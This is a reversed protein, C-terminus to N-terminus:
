PANCKRCDTNHKRCFQIVNGLIQKIVNGVILFYHFGRGNALYIGTAGQEGRPPPLLM